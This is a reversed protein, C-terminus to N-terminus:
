AGGGIRHWPAAPIDLLWNGYGSVFDPTCCGCNSQETGCKLECTPDNCTAGFPAWRVAAPPLGRFLEALDALKVVEPWKDPWQDILAGDAGVMHGIEVHLDDELVGILHRQQRTTLLASFRLELWWWKFQADFMAREKGTPVIRAFDRPHYPRPAEVCRTLMANAPLLLSLEGREERRTRARQARGAAELAAVKRFRATMAAGEDPSRRRM